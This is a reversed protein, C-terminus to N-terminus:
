LEIDKVKAESSFCFRKAKFFNNFIQPRCKKQLRMSPCISMEQRKRFNNLTVKLLSTDWSKYKMEDQYSGITVIM